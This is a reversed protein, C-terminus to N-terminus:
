VICTDSHQFLIKLEKTSKLKYLVERQGTIERQFEDRNFEISAPHGSSFGLIKNLEFLDLGFFENGLRFFLKKAEEDFKFSSFFEYTVGAYTHYTKLIFQEQGMRRLYMCVEEFLGVMELNSKSM